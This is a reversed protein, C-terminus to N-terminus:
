QAVAHGRAPLAGVSGLRCGLHRDPVGVQSAGLRSRARCEGPGRVGAAYGDRQAAAHCHPNSDAHPNPDAHPDANRKARYNANPDPLTDADPNRQLHRCGDAYGDVIRDGCSGHPERDSYRAANCGSSDPKPNPIAASAARTRGPRDAHEM